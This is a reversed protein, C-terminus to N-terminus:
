RLLGGIEAGPTAGHTVAWAVGAILAVSLMGRLVRELLDVGSPMRASM